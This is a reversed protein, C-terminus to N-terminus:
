TLVVTNIRDPSFHLHVEFKDTPHIYKSFGFVRITRSPLRIISHNVANVCEDSNITPKFSPRQKRTVFVVHDEIPTPYYYVDKIWKILKQFQVNLSDTVFMDTYVSPDIIHSQWSSMVKEEDTLILDPSITNYLDKL